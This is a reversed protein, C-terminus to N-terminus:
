ISSLNSFYRDFLDLGRFEMMLLLVDVRHFHILHLCM